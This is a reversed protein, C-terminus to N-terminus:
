FPASIAQRRPVCQLRWNAIAWRWLAALSDAAPPRPQGLFSLAARLAPAPDTADVPQALTQKSLKEGATNVAVPVHAYRPTPYGLLRQLYIQRPTSQLLDAGRVVDTIGQAADDVVVSLQYAFVHDARYLVFDGVDKELEQRVPGQVADTFEIVENRTDLRVARPAKGPALGSRCTGPYVPGEIGHVASDAVERRSCGCAYVVGLEWLRRIAAEYADNRRSQWLPPGDWIMGFAGLTRLIDDAAGAIVRPTDIDEIRVLWQGGCSRADLYSAVAAILSGFHLPGTPSPAFRGRYTQPNM